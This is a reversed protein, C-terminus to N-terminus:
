RGKPNDKKTLCTYIKQPLEDRNGSTVALIEPPSRGFLNLVSFLTSSNLFNQNKIM